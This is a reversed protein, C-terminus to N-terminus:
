ARSFLITRRKCELLTFLGSATLEQIMDEKDMHHDSFSLIGQPKLVRHLQELVFGSNHLEHFVDYLLVVDVSEANLHIVGNTRSTEVNQLGRENAKQRVMQLALPHADVAYVKGSEGVLRAAALAYAGPGCGYDLVLDGPKIGADLIETSPPRFLDRLWLAVAMLRFHLNSM